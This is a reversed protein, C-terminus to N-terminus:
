VGMCDVRKAQAPNLRLVVHLRLRRLGSSAGGLKPVHPRVASSKANRHAEQQSPTDAAFGADGAEDEPAPANVPTIVTADAMTEDDHDSM